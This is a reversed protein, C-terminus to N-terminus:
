VRNPAWYNSGGQLRKERSNAVTPDISGTREQPDNLFTLSILDNTTAGHRRPLRSRFRAPSQSSM